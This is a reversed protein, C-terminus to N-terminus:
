RFVCGEPHAIFGKRCTGSKAQGFCQAHACFRVQVSNPDTVDPVCIACDALGAQLHNLMEGLGRRDEIPKGKEGDLYFGVLEMGSKQCFEELIKKEERTKQQHVYGLAKM